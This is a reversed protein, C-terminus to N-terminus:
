AIAAYKPDGSEYGEISEGTGNQLTQEETTVQPHQTMFMSDPVLSLNPPDFKEKFTVSGGLASVLVVLILLVMFIILM